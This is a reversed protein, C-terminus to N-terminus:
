KTLSPTDMTGSEMKGNSSVMKPRAAGSNPTTAAIHFMVETMPLGATPWKDSRNLRFPASRNAPRANIAIPTMPVPHDTM